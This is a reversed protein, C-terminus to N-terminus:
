VSKDKRESSKRQISESLKLLLFGQRASRIKDLHVYFTTRGGFAHTAQQSTIYEYGLSYVIATAISEPKTKVSFSALIKQEDLYDVFEEYTLKRIGIGNLYEERSEYLDLLEDKTVM